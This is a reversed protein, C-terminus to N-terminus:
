FTTKINQYDPFIKNIIDEFEKKELTGWENYKYKNKPGVNPTKNIISYFDKEKLKNNLDFIESLKLYFNYNQDVDELKFFYKKAKKLKKFDDLIAKNITAWFWAIKGIKTLKIWEDLYDEKPIIRSFNRKLNDSIDIFPSKRVQYDSLKSYWGKRHFSEVSKVPDRLNFFLFNPNLREYLDQVGFSLYPSAIFSNEYNSLDRNRALELLQYISEKEIPLNYYSIFRYFAELDSFRESTGIWNSHSNFIKAFWNQGCRGAGFSIIFKSDSNYNYTKYQMLEDYAPRKIKSAEKSLRFLRNKIKYIVNSM